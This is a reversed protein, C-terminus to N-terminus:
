RRNATVRRAGATILALFLAVGAAALVAAADAIERTCTVTQVPEVAVVGAHLAAAQLLDSGPARGEVPQHLASGAAIEEVLEELALVALLIDGEPHGALLELSFGIM